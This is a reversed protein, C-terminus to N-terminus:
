EGSVEVKVFYQTDCYECKLTKPDITGACKECILNISKM